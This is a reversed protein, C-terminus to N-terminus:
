LIADEDNKILRAAKAASYRFFGSLSLGVEQAAKNYKNKEAESIRLHVHSEKNLGKM